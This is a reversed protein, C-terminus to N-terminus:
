EIGGHPGATASVINQEGRLLKEITAWPWHSPSDGSWVQMGPIDRLRQSAVKKVLGGPAVWIRDEGPAEVPDKQRCFIFIRGGMRARRDIWAVQAPRIKVRHGRVRKFEIWGQAGGPFCYESDPVGNATGGTEIASWQAQPLWTKFLLRLGHDADSM